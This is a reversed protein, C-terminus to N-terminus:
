KGYKTATGARLVDLWRTLRNLLWGGKQRKNLKQLEIVARAHSIRENALDRYILNARKRRKVADGADLFSEVAHIVKNTWGGPADGSAQDAGAELQQQMATEIVRLQSQFRESQAIESHRVRAIAQRVTEECLPGFEQFSALIRLGREASTEDSAVLQRCAQHCSDWSQWRYVFDLGPGKINQCGLIRNNFGPPTEECIRAILSNGSAHVDDIVVLRAQL